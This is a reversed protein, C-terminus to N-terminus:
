RVEVQHRAAIAVDKETYRETYIAGDSERELRYLFGDSDSQNAAQQFAVVTEWSHTTAFVQVDMQEALTFISSWVEDQVSHHLGNEVEDILVSGGWSDAMAVALGFVRNVGDGMSRIPVPRAGGKLKCLVTRTRGEGVLLIRDLDPVVVRLADEVLAEDGSFVINDWISRTQASTLGSSPIAMAITREGFKTLPVRRALWELPLHHETSESTLILAVEPDLLVPRRRARTETGPAEDATWPLSVTLGTSPMSDTALRITRLTDQHFAGYFLGEIADVVPELDEAELQEGPARVPLRRLDAHDRVIGVLVASLSDSNRHLYLELAELLSSKGANNKGVFLNVRGLEPLRLRRIGRFGEVEFSRVPLVDSM